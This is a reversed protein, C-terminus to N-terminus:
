RSRKCLKYLKMILSAYTWRLSSPLYCLVSLVRSYLSRDLWRTPMDFVGSENFRGFIKRRYEITYDDIFLHDLAIFLYNLATHGINHDHPLKVLQQVIYLLSELKKQTFESRMTSGQRLNHLYTVGAITSVRQACVYLQMAHLSDEFMLGERFSIANCELFKCNILKDTSNTFNLLAFHEVIKARDYLKPQGHNNIKGLVGDCVFQSNGQVFDTDHAEAALMNLAGESLKDDGDLFYIWDGTAVKMASNRAAAQGKNQDHVVIKIRPDSALSRVIEMSKDQSADDVVICELDVGTQSLVSEISGRIWPEVNYVPIIVSIKM